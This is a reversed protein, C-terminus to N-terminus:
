RCEAKIVTFAADWDDPSPGIYTWDVKICLHYQHGLNGIINAYWYDTALTVGDQVNIPGLIDKENVNFVEKWTSIAPEWNVKWISSNLQGNKWKDVVHINVTATLWEVRPDLFYEPVVDSCVLPFYGIQENMWYAEAHNGNNKDSQASLQTLGIGTFLCVLLFARTKM